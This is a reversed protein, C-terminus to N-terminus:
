DTPETSEEKPPRIVAYNGPSLKRFTDPRKILANRVIQIKNPSKVPKGIRELAAIADSVNFANGKGNIAFKITKWLPAAKEIEEGAVAEREKVTFVRIQSGVVVLPETNAIFAELQEKRKALTDFQVRLAQLEAKANSLAMEYITPNSLNKMFFSYWLRPENEM